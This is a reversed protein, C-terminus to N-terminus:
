PTVPDGFNVGEEVGVLAELAEAERRVQRGASATGTVAVGDGLPTAPVDRDGALGIVRQGPEVVEADVGSDEDAM